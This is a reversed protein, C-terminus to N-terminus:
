VATERIPKILRYNNIENERYEWCEGNVYLKGRLIRVFAGKQKEERAKEKIFLQIQRENWTLDDHIRFNKGKLLVRRTMIIRKDEYNKLKVMIIRDTSNNGERIVRCEEIEPEVFLEKKLMEVVEERTESNGKKLGKIIINRMRIQKERLEINKEVNKIREFLGVNIIDRDVSRSIKNLTEEFEDFKKKIGMWKEEREVFNKMKNELNIIKIEMEKKFQVFNEEDDDLKKYLINLEDTFNERFEENQEEASLFHERLVYFNDNLVQFNKSIKQQSNGSEDNSKKIKNEQFRVRKPLTAALPPTAYCDLTDKDKNIDNNNESSEM